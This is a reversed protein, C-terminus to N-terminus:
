YDLLLNLTRAFEEAKERSKFLRVCRAKFLVQYEYPEGHKNRQECVWARPM